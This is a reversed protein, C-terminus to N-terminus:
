TYKILNTSRNYKSKDRLALPLENLEEIISRVDQKFKFRPYAQQFKWTDIEFDYCPGTAPLTVVKAGTEAAVLEAIAGIPYSFSALPYLGPKPPNDVIRAICRVLDSMGLIARYANRNSVRVEGHTVADIFMSNIMLELRPTPSYGCVTGFQLGYYRKGSLRAIKDITSKQFDYHCLPEDGASLVSGSSAYIFTQDDKLKYVLNQFNVVNNSFSGQPDHECLPVSSHGALLIVVDYTQIVSPPLHRYDCSSSGYEAFFGRDFGDVIHGEDELHPRLRRGIYGDSGILLISSM